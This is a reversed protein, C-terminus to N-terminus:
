DLIEEHPNLPTQKGPARWRRQSKYEKQRRKRPSKISVDLKPSPRESESYHRNTARQIQGMQKKNESSSQVLHSGYTYYFIM